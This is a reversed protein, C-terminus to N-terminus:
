EQKVKKLSAKSLDRERELHSYATHFVPHQIILFIIPLRHRSSTSCPCRIELRPKKFPPMATVIAPFKERRKSAPPGFSM